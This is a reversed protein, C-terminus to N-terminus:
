PRYFVTVRKEIYGRRPVYNISINLVDINDENIWRIADEESDKERSTFIKYDLKKM